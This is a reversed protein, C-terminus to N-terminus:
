PIEGSGNWAWYGIGDREVWIWEGSDDPPENGSGGGSPPPPDGGSPTVASQDSFAGVTAAAGTLTVYGADQILRLQSDSFELCFANELSFMWPRLIAVGSSPTERLHQTGPALEMAGQEVLFANELRKATSEHNDFDVRAQQYDDTEGGSFTVVFAKSQQAM